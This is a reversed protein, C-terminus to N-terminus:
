TTRALRRLAILQEAARALEEHTLPTGGFRGRCYLETIQKVPGRAEQWEDGILQLFETSTTAPHLTMGQGAAISLMNKYLQTIHEQMRTAPYHRMQRAYRRHWTFAILLALGAFVSFGLLWYVTGNAIHAHGLLVALMHSGTNALNRFWHTVFTRVVEGSDRLGHVVAIQDRIDYRIFVRDWQLKVSEGFRRFTEWGTAAPAASAPTPDMMIWGSRPLYVEVWAHADRQRVTYYNGFDNWETALFGTILRAPIGLTRLMVVMATAYHECYGTKRTFLFDELPSVSASTETELSYRYSTLLHQQVAVTMEYPTHLTATVQRALAIVDHSVNPLQLYQGRISDAYEERSSMREDSMIQRERSTVSYRIRSASPFPLHIGNMRDAQLSGFDGSVLEAFPAAFLVATDLAELLIDQRLQRSFRDPPQTGVARVTFMGDGILGLQRRFRSGSSWARGSYHEYALGRLYLRDKGAAPDDPLGVRMVIQPDEKVSGIMGLDVRESFGTTKLGDGKPQPLFGASIRPLLFFITLTLVFTLVAIGNTLWFFRGTIVAQVSFANTRGSDTGDGTSLADRGTLHYLLLTWIATLLYLIFIPVYWLDATQAASALIAMLCLAYLHRYDRRQHLSVVKICMLLVLFHVGSPLLEQSVVWFDIVFLAFALILLGNLLAPSAPVLQPLHTAQPWGTTHLLIMIVILATPIALLVPISGALLLGLFATAALLISSLKLAREFPM